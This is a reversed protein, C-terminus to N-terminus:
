NISANRHMKGESNEDNKLMAQMLKKALITKNLDNPTV